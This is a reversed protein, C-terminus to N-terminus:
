IGHVIRVQGQENQFQDLSELLLTKDFYKMLLARMISWLHFFAIYIYPMKGLKTERLYFYSWWSQRLHLTSEFIISETYCKVPIIILYYLLLCM